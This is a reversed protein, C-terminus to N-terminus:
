CRECDHFFGSFAAHSTSVAKAGATSATSPVLVVSARVLAQRKGWQGKKEHGSHELLSHTVCSSAPPCDKRLQQRFSPNSIAGECSLHGRPSSPLSWLCLSGTLLATLVCNLCPCLKEGLSVSVLCIHFSDATESNPSSSLLGPPVLLCPALPCSLPYFWIYPPYPDHSM